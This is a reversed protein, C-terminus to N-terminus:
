AGPRTREVGDVSHRRPAPKTSTAAHPEMTWPGRLKRPEWLGARLQRDLWHTPAFLPAVRESWETKRCVKVPLRGAYFPVPDWLGPKESPYMAQGVCSYYAGVYVGLLLAVGAVVPLTAGARGQASWSSPRTADPVDRKRENRRGFFLYAVRADRPLSHRPRHM